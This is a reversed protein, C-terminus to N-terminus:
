DDEDPSKVRSYLFVVATRTDQRVRTCLFLLQAVGRHFLRAQEESLATRQDDPCVQFLHDAAPTASTKGLHQAFDAVVQKTFKVMSFKVVGPTSFYLDMGLYEHKKGRSIRVEGYVKKLYLILKTVQKSDRHLIKLDDVHWMVTMQKGSVIKNAVCPNYPNHVFGRGKIDGWLKLYFCLASKLLGYLANALKVYLISRGNKNYSVFKRYLEPATLVM